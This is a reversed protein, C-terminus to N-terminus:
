KVGEKACAITTMPTLLLTKFYNHCVPSYIYYYQLFLVAFAFATRRIKGVSELGNGEIIYNRCNFLTYVRSYVSTLRFKM